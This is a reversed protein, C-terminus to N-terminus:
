RKRLNWSVAAIAAFGLLARASPEPVPSAEPLSATTSGADIVPGFQTLTGANGVYLDAGDGFAASDNNILLGSGEVYVATLGDEYDFSTGPNEYVHFIDNTETGSIIGEGTSVWLSLAFGDATLLLWAAMVLLLLRGSRSRLM